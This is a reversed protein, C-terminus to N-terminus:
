SNLNLRQSNEKGNPRKFYRLKTAEPAELLPVVAAVPLQLLLEVDGETRLSKDRLELLLILGLGLAGGGGLGAFAFMPTNPYSPEQPLTAANVVVIEEGQRRHQLDSAMESQHKKKLLDNYFDQAAQYDRTVQRYEQEATPSLALRSEYLKIRAQVRRQELNRDQIEEDYAHLQHRLQRLEPPELRPSAGANESNQSASDRIKRKLEEAQTKLKAIEPYKDTYRARLVLITKEVEALQQQVTDPHTNEITASAEQWAALQEDLLSRTYAREEETRRRSETAQDLEAELAALMNLANPNTQTQEPLEGAHAGKFMAVRAEQEDLKRKADKLEDDLFATASHLERQQERQNEEIFMSAVDVCAQQALAPSGFSCSINFGAFDKEGTSVPSQAWGLTIAKRLHEMAANIQQQAASNQILGLKKVLQPLRDEGFVREQMASLRSALYASFDNRVTADTLSTGQIALLTQSTYLKPVYRSLAYGVLTGACMTTIVIWWRRLLIAKYDEFGLQRHGLM